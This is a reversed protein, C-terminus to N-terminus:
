KLRAVIIIHYTDLAAGGGTTLLVDGTGGSGDDVIECDIIGQGMPLVALVSDTTHDGSLKVYSFGAINWSIRELVVNTPVVGNNDKLTSLDIKVVDSEDEAATGIGTLQVIIRKFGSDDTPPTGDFNPPFLYRTTVTLAM